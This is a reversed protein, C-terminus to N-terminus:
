VYGNKFFSVDDALLVSNVEKGWDWGVWMYEAKNQERTSSLTLSLQYRKDKPNLTKQCRLDVDKMEWSMDFLESSLGHKGRSLFANELTYRVGPGKKFHM